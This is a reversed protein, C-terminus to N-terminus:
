VLFATGSMICTGFSAKVFELDSNFTLNISVSGGGSISFTFVVVLGNGTLPSPLPTCTSGFSFPTSYTDGNWTLVATGTFATDFNINTWSVSAVLHADDDCPDTTGVEHDSSVDCTMFFDRGYSEDDGCIPICPCCIMSPPQIEVAGNDTNWTSARGDPFVILKDEENTILVYPM